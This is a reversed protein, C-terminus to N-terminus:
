YKEQYTVFMDPKKNSENEIKCIVWKNDKLIHDTTLM